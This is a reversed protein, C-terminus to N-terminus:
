QEGPVSLPEEMRDLDGLSLINDYLLSRPDDNASLGYYLLGIYRTVMKRIREVLLGEDLAAGFNRPDMRFWSVVAKPYEPAGKTGFAFRWDRGEIYLDVSTLSILVAEPDAYAEPFLSGAYEILTGADVQQRDPNALDSPVSTGKLVRVKLGYQEDYYDELYDLVASPVTGLPVLCVRRESGDCIDTESSSCGAILLIAGIAFVGSLSALAKLPM